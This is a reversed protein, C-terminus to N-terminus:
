ASTKDFDRLTAVVYDVEVDTLDAFLPLTIMTTWIKEATPAAGQHGDFLPHLNIPMYHVGTAVGHKKLHGIL